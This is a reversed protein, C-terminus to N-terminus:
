GHAAVMPVPAARPRTSEVIRIATELAGRAEAQSPSIKAFKVLDCSALWGQVEVLALERPARRRLEDLLEETTMELGDFEFRAGLYARVIESVQFYFPRLDIGDVLMVGVRDLKDLAIEHPPRPLPAPRHLARARMRRRVLAAILAGAGAALLAGAGYVLRLDQELVPVSAANDKLQPEPENALLSRVKIAVPTTRVSSVAGGQGLYTVELAPLTLEGPEYAAIQLVFQRRMKGDGLDAEEIKRTQDDLESFPGLDLSRPLNVPTGRGGIATITLNVVDGVRVETKDVQAGVTPADAAPARADLAILLLLIM